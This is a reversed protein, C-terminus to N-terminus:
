RALGRDRIRGELYKRAGVDANAEILRRRRREFMRIPGIAVESNRSAVTRAGSQDSVYWVVQRIAGDTELLKIGRYTISGYIGYSYRNQLADLIEATQDDVDDRNSTTGTVTAFDSDYEARIALAIEEIRVAEQLESGSTLQREVIYRDQQRTDTERVGYSTQLYIEAAELTGNADSYKVMRRPFQLIGNLKDLESAGDYERIEDDTDDEPPDTLVIFKGYVEYRKNAKKSGNTVTYTDLLFDNLPLIQNIDDLSGYDPVDLSEDAQTDVLYWRFVTKKALAIEDDTKGEERMQEFFNEDAIGTWGGAPKYSLDNVAKVAGDTDLGIAKTKLRSEYQTEGCVVALIDPGEPADATISPSMVDGDLPLDAGISMRVIRAANDLGLAIDCGRDECLQHIIVDARDRVWDVEPYGGNPLQTVDFGIEYMSQFLLAALEQPTKQTDPDITGDALRVNYRGSIRAFRWRWRRDLLKLVMVHGRTSLRMSAFDVKIDPFTIVDTGHGIALTGSGPIQGDQPLCTLIISAPFIGLMRPVIVSKVANIGTFAAACQGM